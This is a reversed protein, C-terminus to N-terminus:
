WGAKSFSSLLIWAHLLILNGYAPVQQSSFLLFFPNVVKETVDTAVVHDITPDKYIARIYGIVKLREHVIHYIYDLSLPGRFSRSICCLKIPRNTLDRWNHDIVSKPLKYSYLVAAPNNIKPSRNRQSFDTEPKAPRAPWHREKKGKKRLQAGGPREPARPNEDDKSTM